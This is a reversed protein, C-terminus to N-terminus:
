GRKIYDLFEQNDPNKYDRVPGEDLSFGTKWLKLVVNRPPAPERPGAIVTATLCYHISLPKALHNGILLTMGQTDAENQGLRYGTGKFAVKRKSSSSSGQENVVEAGHRFIVLNICTDSFDLSKNKNHNNAPSLVCAELFM